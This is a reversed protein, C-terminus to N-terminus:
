AKRALSRASSAAWEATVRTNVEPYLALGVFQLLAEAIIKRPACPAYVRVSEDSDSWRHWLFGRRELSRCRMAVKTVHRREPAFNFDGAYLVAAIEAATARPERLAYLVGLVDLDADTLTTLDLKTTSM